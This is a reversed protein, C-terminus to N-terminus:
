SNRPRIVLNVAAVKDIIEYDIYNIFDVYDQWSTSFMKDLYPEYEFIITPKFKNITKIAGKMARLDAGQVDVKIVSVHDLCLSDVTISPVLLGTTATMDIGYSGFSEYKVLDDDPYILIEDNADWVAGFIVTCNTCNNLQINRLLVNYIWPDAEFAFVRGGQNVHKSLMVSMQGFNSGLDLITSNRDAYKMIENVVPYDHIGNNIITQLVHDTRPEPLLYDGTITNYLSLKRTKM